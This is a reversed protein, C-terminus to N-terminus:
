IKPVGGIKGEHYVPFIPRDNRLIDGGIEDLRYAFSENDVKNALYTRYRGLMDLIQGDHTTFLLQAAKPNQEDSLFLNVLKPLIHPHLNIDFEDLALVGGTKLMTKYVGLYRFLARTGSSETSDVVPMLDNGVRHLFVPFKKEKGKDDQASHIEINEVGVDCERIFETVFALLDPTKNLMNSAVDVSVWRDRLGSFSVNTIINAFFLVVPTLEELQHQSATSIVSANSRLKVTKLLDLKKTAYSIENAKRELIKTRKNKTRFLTESIVGAETLELEYRYEMGDVAQFEVYFNTPEHNGYFGEIAIVSEPDAAFSRACFDSLFSIARIIHTKGSANAGKVCLVNTHARGMSITEPCKADLRFSIDVGEKFSFFNKFGFTLLM